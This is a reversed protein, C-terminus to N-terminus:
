KCNVTDLDSLYIEKWWPEVLEAPINEWNVKTITTPDDIKSAWAFVKCQNGYKDQFTPLYLEVIAKQVRDGYTFIAKYIIGADDFGDIIHSISSVSNYKVIIIKGYAGDEIKIETIGSDFADKESDRAPRNWERYVYVAFYKRIQARLKEESTLIEPENTVSSAPLRIFEKSPQKQLNPVQETPQKFFVFLLIAVVAITGIIIKQQNSLAINKSKMGRYFVWICGALSIIFGLPHLNWIENLILFGSFLFLMLVFSLIGFIKWIVSYEPALRKEIVFLTAAGSLLILGTQIMWSGSAGIGALILLIASIILTKM